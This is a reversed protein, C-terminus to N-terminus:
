RYFTIDPYRRRLKEKAHDRDDARLASCVYEFPDPGYQWEYKYVPQGVGYYYGSSDYGGADLRVRRVYCKTTKHPKNTANKVLHEIDMDILKNPHIM